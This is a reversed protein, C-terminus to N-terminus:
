EAFDVDRGTALDGCEIPTVAASALYDRAGRDGAAAAAAPELHDRGILVPHGPRGGYVARALADPAARTLLRRIVAPGVDPLDVLHVLVADGTAASLGARLSASMGAAWDAAVIVRAGRPVLPLAQDARAGLVVTVGTCGGATLAAVAGDLAGPVLAKPLGRRRGAGAALILGDTHM